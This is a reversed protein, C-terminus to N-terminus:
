PATRVAFDGLLRRYFGGSDFAGMAQGGGSIRAHEAEAALYGAEDVAYGSEEAVDKTVQFPLGLTAKLYFAQEGALTAGQDVEALMHELETLGRDMTRHFREEELTMSTKISDAQELLESYHDGMVEFVSDAVDALFPGDFGIERGFRAARRIM